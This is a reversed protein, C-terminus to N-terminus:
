FKLIKGSPCECEYTLNGTVRCSGGNQCPSPHCPVFRTDCRQGTFGEHCKCRCFGDGNLYLNKACLKDECINKHWYTSTVAM